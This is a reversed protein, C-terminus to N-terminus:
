RIGWILNLLYLDSPNQVASNNAYQKNLLATFTDSQMTDFLPFHFPNALLSDHDLKRYWGLMQKSPRHFGHFIDVLIALTGASILVL